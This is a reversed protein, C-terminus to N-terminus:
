LLKQSAIYAIKNPIHIGRDNLYQVLPYKIAMNKISPVLNLWEQTLKKDLFVSRCEIGYTLAIYEHKDILDRQYGGYFHSYPFIDRLDNPWVKFESEPYVPKHMYNCMIEDAGQGTMLVKCNLKNTFRVLTGFPHNRIGAEDLRNTQKNNGILKEKKISRFLM